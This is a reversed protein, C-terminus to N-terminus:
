YKWKTMLKRRFKPDEYNKLVDCDIYTNPKVDVAKM